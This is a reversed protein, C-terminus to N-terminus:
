NIGSDVVIQMPPTERLAEARSRMPTTHRTGAKQINVIRAMKIGKNISNVGLYYGFVEM